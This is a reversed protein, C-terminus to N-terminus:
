STEKKLGFFVGSLPREIFRWTLYGVGMCVIVVFFLFGKNRIIPVMVSELKIVYGLVAIHTLYQAFSFDSVTKVVQAIKGEGTVLPPLSVAGLVMLAMAIDWVFWGFENYTMSLICLVLFSFQRGERCAYYITVGLFFCYFVMLPMWEVFSHIESINRGSNNLFVEFRHAVPKRCFLMVILLVLSVYYRRVLKYILPVTLYFFMFAPITWFGNMNNWINFKDSPIFMNLFLYYRLYKVSCVGDSSFVAAGQSPLYTVLNLVYLITLIAWYLPVIRLFRKKYYEKVSKCRDMSFMSLYGSLVFFLPVGYYGTWTYKAPWGLMYGVHVMLVMFAALIRVIDINTNRTM